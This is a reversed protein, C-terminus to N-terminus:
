RGSLGSIIQEATVKIYQKMTANHDIMNQNIATVTPTSLLMFSLPLVVLGM